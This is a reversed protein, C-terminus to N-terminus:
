NKYPLTPKHNTSNDPMDDCCDNKSHVNRATYKQIALSAPTKM